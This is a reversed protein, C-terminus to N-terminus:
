KGFAKRAKESIDQEVLKYGNNPRESAKDVLPAPVGAKKAQNPTLYTEKKLRAVYPALLPGAPVGGTWREKGEATVISLGPIYEGGKIRGIIEEGTAGLRSKIRQQAAKLLRYEALVDPADLKQLRGKEMVDLANLSAKRATDCHALAKCYKCHGGSKASPDPGEAARIAAQLTAGHKDMIWSVHAKWTRVRGKIHAPGPQVITMEVHDVQARVKDRGLHDIVLLAYAILQWNEEPEVIGWGTRLDAIHLTRGILAWADCTGRLGYLADCPGFTQEFIVHQPAGWGRLATQYTAVMDAMDATFIVGNTAARGVSELPNGDIGCREALEHCATGNRAAESESDPYQSEFGWSAPCPVWRTAASPRPAVGSEAM